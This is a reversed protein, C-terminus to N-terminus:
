DRAPSDQSMLLQHVRRIRQLWWQRRAGELLVKELCAPDVTASGVPLAGAQPKLPPHAVDRQLLTGTGLGCAYPLQPLSAALAVGASLGVSTDIASSVVAPLGAARVIELARSVGGLPAVKVVIVDAAGSRAVELPDDAKRVSEDAAIPLTVGRAALGEKVAYLGDIGAAPQEAYELGYECLVALAEVAQAASWGQNADVRVAAHPAHARVAAVRAVDEALSQGSEAVKVKVATIGDGYGDLLHPVRDASIAPVTANVPVRDRVPAPFGLWAAELCSRWWACAEADDYELFPAFEGWGQPGRVLVAERSSVGRFRVTLPIRVVVAGSLIEELELTHPSLRPPTTSQPM